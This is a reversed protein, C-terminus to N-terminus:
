VEGEKKGLHNLSVASLYPVPEVATWPDWRLVMRKAMGVLITGLITGRTVLTQGHKGPGDKEKSDM